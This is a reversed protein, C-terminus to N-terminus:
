LEDDYGWDPAPLEDASTEGPCHKHSPPDKGGQCKVYVSSMLQDLAKYEYDYIFVYGLYGAAECKNGYYFCVTCAYEDELSM